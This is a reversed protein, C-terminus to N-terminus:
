PSKLVRTHAGYDKGDYPMQTPTRIKRMAQLAVRIRELLEDCVSAKNNNAWKGAVIKSGNAHTLGFTLRLEDPIGYERGEHYTLFDTLQLHELLTSFLEPHERLVRREEVFGYKKVADPKIAQHVLRGKRDAYFSYGGFILSPAM